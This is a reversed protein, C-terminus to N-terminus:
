LVMRGRGVPLRQAIVCSFRTSHDSPSFRACRSAPDTSEPRLLTTVAVSHMQSAARCTLNLLLFGNRKIANECSYELPCLNFFWWAGNWVRGGAVALGEQVGARRLLISREATGLAWEEVPCEAEQEWSGWLPLVRAAPGGLPGELETGAM